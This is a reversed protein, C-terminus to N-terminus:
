PLVVRDSVFVNVFQSNLNTQGAELLQERLVVTSRGANLMDNEFLRINQSENGETILSSFSLNTHIRGCGLHEARKRTVQVQALSTYPTLGQATRVADYVSAFM